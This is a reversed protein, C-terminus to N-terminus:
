VAGAIKYSIRTLKDRARAVKSIDGLAPDVLFQEDFLAEATRRLEAIWKDMNRDSLFRYFYPETRRWFWEKLWGWRERDREIQKVTEIPKKSKQLNRSVDVLKTGIQDAVSIADEIAEEMGETVLLPFVSEHWRRIEFNKAEYGFVWLRYQGEPGYNLHHHVIASPTISQKEDCQILGLWHRYSLQGAASLPFLKGKNSRYPTLHHRWEIFRTGRPRCKYSSVVQGQMGCLSCKGEEPDDLWIPRPAAWFLIAPHGDEPTVEDLGKEIWPIKIGAPNGLALFDEEPLQNLRVTEALYNGLIVTTLFCGGRLSQRHGRGGSTAMMQLTLLSAAACSLCLDTSDCRATFFDRNQKVTSEGPRGFLMSGISLSDGDVEQQMFRPGNGLLNFAEPDLGDRTQQFGILFQILAANLDPRPADLRQADGLRDPAVRTSKGESTVVPIWPDKFLNM